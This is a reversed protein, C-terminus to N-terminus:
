PAGGHEALWADVEALQSTNGLDQYDDRALEAVEVARTRDENAEWLAQALVFRAEAVQAPPSKGDERLGVARRALSVAESARRQALAVRGLGVLTEALHPHAPGLAKERLALARQHLM